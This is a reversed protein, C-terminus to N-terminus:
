LTRKLNRISAIKVAERIDLRDQSNDDLYQAAKLERTWKIDEMGAPDTLEYLRDYYRPPRMAKGRMVVEDRPYVDESFKEFWGHAIGPKLSM